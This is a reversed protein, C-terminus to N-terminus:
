PSAPACTGLDGQGSLVPAFAENASQTAIAIAQTATEGGLRRAVRLAQVAVDVRPAWAGERAGRRLVSVIAETADAICLASVFDLAAAIVRPWEDADAFIPALLPWADRDQRETLLQIARERVMPSADRLRDRLTAIEEPRHALAELAAVRVMPWPDHTARDILQPSSTAVSALLTVATRRVRPSTDRLGAATADASRAGVAMLAADRVQWEATAPQAQAILWADNDATPTAQRAASALRYRDVFETSARARTILDRALDPRERAVGVALSAIASPPASALWTELAADAATHPSRALVSAIAARLQPRDAGGDAELAHLLPAIDVIAGSRALTQAADEGDSAAALEVLTEASDPRARDLVSLAASRVEADDDRAALALLHLAEPGPRVAGAIRVARRHGLASLREWSELLAVIAPTGVHALWDAVHEADRGEEVLSDVLSALGGGFDLESYAEVDGLGVHLAADDSPGRDIVIALCTWTRPEPLAIWARDFTEPLTVHLAPGADGVVFVSRPAVMGDATGRVLAVARIARPADVRAVVLEGSGAGGRGEIWVTAPNGDTLARPASLGSIDGVGLASTEGLMRLSSGLPPPTPGPSTTTATLEVREGSVRTISVPRLVGSDDIGSPFSLAPTSGCLSVGERVQGVVVDARGDGTRDTVEIADATREGPDGHLDTRGSWVIAPAGAHEAIVWVYSPSTGARVIAVPGSTADVREITASTLAVSVTAEAVHRGARAAVHTDSPGATVTVTVPHRLRVTQEALPPPTAQAAAHAAALVVWV